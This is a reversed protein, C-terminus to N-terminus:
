VEGRGLQYEAESLRLYVPRVSRYDLYDGAVAQQWALDALAAARPSRHSIPLQQLYGSFAQDWLQSFPEIGDGVMILERGERWSEVLGLLEQPPLAQEDCLPHPIDRSCDYLATYIENKRAYIVPCVLGPSYVLNHALMQLTSVGVLPIDLGMCLGKAAALGIRLGTFSGPGISVAVTALDEVSREAQQLVQDILPMLQVSHRQNGHLTAEVLLKGDQVLAVGAVPTASDIALLLM